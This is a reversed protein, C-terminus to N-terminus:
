GGGLAIATTGGRDRPNPEPTRQQIATVERGSSLRAAPGRRHCRDVAANPPPPLPLLPSGVRGGFRSPPPANDAKAVAAASLSASAGKARRKRGRGGVAARLRTWGARHLRTWGARFRKAEIRTRRLEEEVQCIGEGARQKALELTWACEVRAVATNAETDALCDASANLMRHLDHVHRCLAGLEVGNDKKNNNDDNDTAAAAATAVAAIASAPPSGPTANTTANTTTAPVAMEERGKAAGANM